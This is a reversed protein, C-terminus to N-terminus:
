EHKVACVSAGQTAGIGADGGMDEISGCLAQLLSRPVKLIRVGTWCINRLTGRCACSGVALDSVFLQDMGLQRKALRQSHKLPPHHGPLLREATDESNGTAAGGPVTSPKRQVGAKHM